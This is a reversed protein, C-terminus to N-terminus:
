LRLRVRGVDVLAVGVSTSSLVSAGLPNVEVGVFKLTGVNLGIGVLEGEVEVGGVSTSSLVSVGLPEVEVGVGIM